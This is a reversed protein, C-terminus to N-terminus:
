VLNKQVNLHYFCQEVVLDWTATLDIEQESPYMEIIEDIEKLTPNFNLARAVQIVDEIVIVSESNNMM